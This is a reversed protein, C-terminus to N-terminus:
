VSVCLVHFLEMDTEFAAFGGPHTSLRCIEMVGRLNYCVVDREVTRNGEVKTLKVLTALNDLRTKNRLYFRWVRGQVM